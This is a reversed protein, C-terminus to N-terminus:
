IIVDHNAIASSSILVPRIKLSFASQLYDLTLRVGSGLYDAGALVLHFIHTDDLFELTM